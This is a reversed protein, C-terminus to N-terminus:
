VGPRALWTFTSLYRLLFLPNLPFQFTQFSLIPVKKEDKLYKYKLKSRPNRRKTSKSNKPFVFDYRPTSALLISCNDVSLGTIKTPDASDVLCWLDNTWFEENLSPLSKCEFMTKGDFYVEKTVFLVRKKEKVMRWFVYYLFSSKGIGPTGTVVAYKRQSEDTKKLAM